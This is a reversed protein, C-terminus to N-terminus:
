LGAPSAADVASEEEPEAEAAVDPAADDAAPDSDNQADDADDADDSEPKDPEPKNPWDLVQWSGTVEGEVTGEIQIVQGMEVRIDGTVVADSKIVLLQGLFDVDGNVTGHIEASQAMIAIDAEVRERIIVLQATYVRSSDIPQTEDFMQGSYRQYGKEEYKTAFEDAKQAAWRYGLVGVVVISIIGLLLVTGCGALVIALPSCGRKERVVQITEQNM